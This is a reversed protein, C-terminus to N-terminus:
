YTCHWISNINEIVLSITLNYYATWFEDFGKVSKVAKKHIRSSLESVRYRLIIWRMLVKILGTIYYYILEGDHRIIFGNDIWVVM